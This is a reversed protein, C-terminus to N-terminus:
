LLHSIELWKNISNYFQKESHIFSSRGGYTHSDGIRRAYSTTSQKRVVVM